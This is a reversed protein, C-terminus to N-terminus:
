KTNIMRMLEKIDVYIFGANEADKKDWGNDSVYIKFDAGGCYKIAKRLNAERNAGDNIVPFMPQGDVKKPYYPSESVVVVFTNDVDFWKNVLRPDLPGSFSKVQETQTEYFMKFVGDTDFAILTKM